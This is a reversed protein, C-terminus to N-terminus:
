NGQPAKTSLRNRYQAVGSDSQQVLDREFGALQIGAREAIWEATARHRVSDTELAARLCAHPDWPSGMADIGMILADLIGAAAAALCAREGWVHGHDLLLRVVVMWSDRSYFGQARAVISTSVSAAGLSIGHDLAWRVAGVGGWLVWGYYNSPHAVGRQWLWDLVGMHGRKAASAYAFKSITIGKDALIRVVGLHAAEDCVSDAALGNWEVASLRALAVSPDIDVALRVLDDLGAKAAALLLASALHRREYHPEPLAREYSYLRALVRANHDIVARHYWDSVVTAGAEGVLWDFVRDHPSQALVACADPTPWTPDAARLWRLVSVAGHASACKAVHKRSTRTYFPSWAASVIDVLDKEVAALLTTTDRLAGDALADKAAEMHIAKLDCSLAHAIGRPQWKIGHGRLTQYLRADGARVASALLQHACRSSPDILTVLWQAVPPRNTNLAMEVLMFIDSRSRAWAYRRNEVLLRRWLTCVCYAAARDVVDDCRLLIACHIETPLASIELQGEGDQAPERPLPGNDM